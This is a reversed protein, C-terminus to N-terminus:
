NQRELARDSWNWWKLLQSDHQDNSAFYIACRYVYLLCRDIRVGQIACSREYLEEADHGRLDSVEKIGLLWLDHAISPGVGPIVQLQKWPKQAQTM